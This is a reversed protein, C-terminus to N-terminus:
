KDHDGNDEAGGQAGRHVKEEWTQGKDVSAIGWTHGGFENSVGQIFAPGERKLAAQSLEKNSM